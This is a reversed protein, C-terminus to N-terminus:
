GNLRSAPVEGDLHFDPCNGSKARNFPRKFEHARAVVPSTPAAAPINGAFSEVKLRIREEADGRAVAKRRKDKKWTFPCARPKLKRSSVLWALYECVAAGYKSRRDRLANERMAIRSEWAAAGNTMTESGFVLSRRAFGRIAPKDSLSPWKKNYEPPQSLLVWRDNSCDRRGAVFYGTEAIRM